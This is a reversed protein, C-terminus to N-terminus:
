KILRIHTTTVKNPDLLDHLFVKKKLGPALRKELGDRVACAIWYGVAPLVSRALERSAADPHKQSTKWDLPLGHLALLENWTLRRPETPHTVHCYATVVPAVADVRLRKEMFSPSFGFDKRQKETFSQWARSFNGKYYGSRTWLEERGPPLEHQRLTAATQRPLTKFLRGVQFDLVDEPKLLPPFVLPHKHAVFLMRKRNQPAGLWLNNQLIITVTYGDDLWREAEDLVFVKGHRWANTVSEWCWANVKLERGARGLDSIWQLRADGRWADAGRESFGRSGSSWPACPPNTFMFDVPRRITELHWHSPVGVRVELEPFNLQSTTVGYDTHELHLPVVFGAKRVGLSFLGAFVDGAIATFHHRKM